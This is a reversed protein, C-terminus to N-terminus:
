LPLYTNFGERKILKEFTLDACAFVTNKECYTKFFAFQLSDLTKLGYKQSLQRILLWSEDVVLSSFYLVEYREECDTEFKEVLIDLTSLTIERERYKRYVSSIMEIKALESIALTDNGKYLTLMKETGVEKHYVKILASTDIFYNKM